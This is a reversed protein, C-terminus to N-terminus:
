AHRKRFVLLEDYRRQRSGRDSYGLEFEPQWDLLSDRTYCRRRWHSAVIPTSRSAKSGGLSLSLNYLSGGVTLNPSALYFNSNSLTGAAQIITYNGTALSSGIPNISIGNAGSSTALGTGAVNNLSVVIADNAGLTAGLDLNIAGGAFIAANGAFTSNQILIFSGISGDALNVTGGANLTLTAGRAATATNGAFYGSAGALPSLTGGANITIATDALVGTGGGQSLILNGGNVTTSGTYTNAGSLKWTGAGSKTLSTTNTTSNDSIVGALEGTGGTSGQLNLIHTAAGTATINGLFKLVGSAGSQDLTTVIGGTTSTFVMARDSTEGSGIYKLTAGLTTTLNLTGNAISSPSGLSSAASHVAGTAGNTTVSNISGVM